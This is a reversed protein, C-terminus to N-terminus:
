ARWAARVASEARAYFDAASRAQRATDLPVLRSGRLLVGDWGEAWELPEALTPRAAAAPAPDPLVYLYPEPIGEDGPSFGLGLSRGAELMLITDLDFHHSWLRPARAGSAGALVALTGHLDDFWRVLEARLAHGEAPFAAGRFLPHEPLEHTPLALPVPATDTLRASTESLWHLGEDLTREILPLADLPTGDADLLLLELTRPDLGARVPRPGPVLAGLWTPGNPDRTLAHHAFDETPTARAIGFAAPLQLAAHLELRAPVLEEPAVSGLPRWIM